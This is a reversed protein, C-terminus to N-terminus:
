RNERRIVLKLGSWKEDVACVKVDVLGISLAMNRIVDETIDTPVKAAKKYWSVWICGNKAIQDKYKLLANELEIVRLAFFHIIDVENSLSDLYIVDETVEGLLGLYNEPANVLFVRTNVKMGLKKFLPTGSYGTM